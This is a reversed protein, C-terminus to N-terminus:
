SDKGLKRTGNKIKELDKESVNHNFFVWGCIKCKYYFDSHNPYKYGREIFDESCGILERHKHKTLLKCIPVLWTRTKFVDKM